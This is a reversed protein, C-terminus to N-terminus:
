SVFGVPNTINARQCEKFDAVGDGGCRGRRTDNTLLLVYGTVEASPYVHVGTVNGIYILQM